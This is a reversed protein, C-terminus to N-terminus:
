LMVEGDEQASMPEGGLLEMMASNSMAEEDDLMMGEEGGEVLELDEPPLEEDGAEMEMEPAPPPPPPLKVGLEDPDLGMRRLASRVLGDVQYGLSAVAPVVQTLISMGDQRRSARSQGNLSGTEVRVQFEGLLDDGTVTPWRAGEPGVIRIATRETMFEQALLLILTFM